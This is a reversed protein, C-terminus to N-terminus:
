HKDLYEVIGNVTRSILKGNIPKEKKDMTVCITYRPNDSPFYGTFILQSYTQLGEKSYYKEMENINDDYLTPCCNLQVVYDGSLDVNKTTWASGIGGDQLTAKLYEKTMKSIKVDKEQSNEQPLVMISDTNVSPMVLSKGELAITNYIAAIEMADYTRPNNTFENWIRKLNDGETKEMAHAMAIDSHLKFGDLLSVKGYGGKYWNNDMVKM